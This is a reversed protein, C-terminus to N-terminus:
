SLSDIFAFIDRPKFEILRNIKKVNAVSYSTENPNEGEVKNLMGFKKEVFNVLDIIKVAKGSGVNICEDELKMLTLKQTLEAVDEVHIFDREALGGNQLVFPTGQKASRLIKFLVSFKDDGGFSNFVRLILYRINNKKCFATILEENFAKTFGNLTIPQIPKEEASNSLEGYVSCSSIFVFKKINKEKCLRLLKATIMVNSELVEDPKSFIDAHIDSATHIIADVKKYDLNTLSDWNDRVLPFISTFAKNRENLKQIHQGLNGNAGTLIINM